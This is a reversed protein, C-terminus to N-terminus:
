GQRGASYRAWPQAALEAHKHVVQTSYGLMEAALPPPVQTVLTRLATNRAGLLNIGLNRVRQMITDPLVHRGARYGPFLWESELGATTRLNPRNALHDALLKDFPAPVPVPESGLALRIESPTVVVDTTRLGAIKVLPQAYLLLLIAAVRYPLSESNGTLLERLWALRQEQTFVRVSKPQRHDISITRNIRASRAWVFFTRIFHRTTPGNALWEDVDQQTCTEATRAYSEHLWALFKITETIDQKSAHVPGRTEHGDASIRRVRNLHHWTAFQEVPQRVSKEPITDLKASIWSEFHALRGDRPPLLGHHELVSRLHNVRKGAGEADLGEHTLPIEGSALRRLLDRVQEPRKWTLISEPRDVNCFADVLTKMAQPDAPCHLLLLTLDERLACRACIGHRYFEAEVGCRDCHFDDSIGACEVCVPQGGIDGRGPLLREFGCGPCHGYTRMAEHFCTGCIAGEPWRARLKKAQRSCRACTLTGKTRPRGRTTSRPNIEITM